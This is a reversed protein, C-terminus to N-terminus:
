QLQFLGAIFYKLAQQLLGALALLITAIFYINCKKKFVTFLCIVASTFTKAGQM